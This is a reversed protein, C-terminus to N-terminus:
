KVEVSFMFKFIIKKHKEERTKYSM